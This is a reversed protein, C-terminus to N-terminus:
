LQLIITNVNFTSSIECRTVNKSERPSTGYVNTAECSYVASDNPTPYNKQLKSTFTFNNEDENENEVFFETKNTFIKKNNKFWIIKNPKFYGKIICKVSMKQYM